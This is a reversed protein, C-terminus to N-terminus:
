ERNMTTPAPDPTQTGTNNSFLVPPIDVSTL